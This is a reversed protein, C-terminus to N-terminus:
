TRINTDVPSRAAFDVIAAETSDVVPPAPVDTTLGLARALEDALWRLGEQQLKTRLDQDVKGHLHIPDGLKLQVFVGLPSKPKAPPPTVLIAAIDTAPWSEMRNSAYKRYLTGVRVGVAVVTRDAFEAMVRVKGLYEALAFSGFIIALMAMVLLTLLLEKWTAPGVEGFLIAALFGLWVIGLFGVLFAGMGLSGRWSERWASEPDLHPLRVEMGDPLRELVAGDIPIPPMDYPVRLARQIEGAMWFLDTADNTFPGAREYLPVRQGDRLLLTLQCYTVTMANENEGTTETLTLVLVDEVQDRPWVFERDSAFREILRANEVCLAVALQDLARQILAERHRLQYVMRVGVVIGAFTAIGAVILLALRQDADDSRLGGILLGGGLIALLPVGVMALTIESAIRDAPREAPAPLSFAIGDAYVRLEPRFAM